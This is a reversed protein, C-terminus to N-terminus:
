VPYDEGCGGVEDSMALEVVREGAEAPVTMRGDSSTIAERLRFDWSRTFETDMFGPSVSFVRIGRSNFEVALSLTLGRLAHKAVAYASFGKPPVNELASTLVNIITGRKQKAMRSVASQSLLWAGKLGVDIQHSVDSWPVRHMPTPHFGPCANNVLILSEAEAVEALTWLEDSGNTIDSKVIQFRAGSSRLDDRLREASSDDSAYTGVVACGRRAFSLCIERGLGKTAGTIIATTNM